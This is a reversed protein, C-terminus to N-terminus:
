EHEGRLRLELIHIIDALNNAETSPLMGQETLRDCLTFLTARYRVNKRFEALLQAERDILIATAMPSTIHAAAERIARLRLTVPAKRECLQRWIRKEDTSFEGAPLAMNTSM